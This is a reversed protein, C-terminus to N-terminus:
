LRLATPDAGASSSTTLARFFISRKDDLTREAGPQLRGAIYCISKKEGELQVAVATGEEVLAHLAQSVLTKDVALWDSDRATAPQMFRLLEKETAVGLAGLAKQALFHGVEGPTPESTDLTPPLVRETLDYIKQFNRRESVMLDGRWFLLELAVKAPKWDWWSGGKKNQSEFDSASLPGEQRIRSLVPELLHEAKSLQYVAWPSRPNHFNRMRPLFYRYDAMPLYSMAHGWYEFVSRDQVQMRHLDDPHYDPRRTWLVHHHAREVVAITDIQVYGLRVILPMASDSVVSSCLGQAQLALRRAEAVSLAHSPQVAAKM